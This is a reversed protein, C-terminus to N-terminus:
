FTHKIQIKLTLEKGIQSFRVQLSELGLFMFGVSIKMKKDTITPHPLLLESKSNGASSPNRSLEGVRLQFGLGSKSSSSFSDMVMSPKQSFFGSDFKNSTSTKHIQVYSSANSSCRSDSKETVLSYTM